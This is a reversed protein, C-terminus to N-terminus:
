NLIEVYIENEFNEISSIDLVFEGIRKVHFSFISSFGYENSKFYLFLVCPKGPFVKNWKVKFANVFCFSEEKTNKSVYDEIYIKNISFEYGSFDLFQEKINDITIDYSYEDSWLFSFFCM